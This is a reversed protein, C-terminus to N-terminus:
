GSEIDNVIPQVVNEWRYREWLRDWEQDWRARRVEKVEEVWRSVNPPSIRINPFNNEELWRLPVSIVQKRAAGYQIIKLPVSHYVFNSTYRPPAFLGIDSALFFLHSDRPNVFGTSIINGRNTADVGVLLIVADPVELSLSESLKDIFERDLHCSTGIYSLVLKETLGLRRKLGDIDRKPTTIFPTFDAGNPLPKFPVDYFKSLREASGASVTYSERCLSFCRRGYDTEYAVVSNDEDDFDDQMDAYIKIGKKEIPPFYYFGDSHFIVDPEVKKVLRGVAKKNFWRSIKRATIKGLIRCLIADLMVSAKLMKLSGEKESQFQAISFPAFLSRAFASFAGFFYNKGKILSGTKPDAWRLMFVEYHKSLEAALHHSRTLGWPLSDAPLFLIRKKHDPRKM